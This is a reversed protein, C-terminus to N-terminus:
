GILYYNGHLHDIEFRTLSQALQRFLFANDQGEWPADLAALLYHHPQLHRMYADQNDGHMESLSWLAILLDSQLTDSPPCDSWTADIGLEGLYWRQLECLEPLDYILYDGTYGLRRVIKCLAGYGAGIEVISELDSVSLGTTIEWQMLHYCQHILNGSTDRNYMVPAGLGDERIAVEYRRWDPSHQLMDLEYGTYPANGVFMTSTIEPWTLFMEVSEGSAVHNRLDARKGSWFGNPSPTPLSLLRTKFEEIEM